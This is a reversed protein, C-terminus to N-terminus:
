KYTELMNREKLLVFWLKHLDDFCKLRLEDARWARGACPLTILPVPTRDTAPRNVGVPMPM